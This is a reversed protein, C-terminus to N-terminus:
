SETIGRRPICYMCFIGFYQNLLIYVGHTTTLFWLEGGVEKLTTPDCGWVLSGLSLSCHSFSLDGYSRGTFILLSQQQTLHLAEHTGPKRKLYGGCGSHVQESISESTRLKFVPCYGSFCWLCRLLLQITAKLGFTPPVVKKWLSTSVSAIKETNLGREVLGTPGPPLWTQM